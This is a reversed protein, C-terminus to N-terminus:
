KELFIPSSVVSHLLERSGAQRARLRAAEGKLWELESFALTRGAAYSAVHKLM